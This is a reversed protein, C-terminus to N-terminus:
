SKRLQTKLWIKAELETPFSRFPVSMKYFRNFFNVILRMALNDTIMASAIFLEEGYQAAYERAERTMTFDARGDMLQLAKNKACGLERYVRFCAEVEVGDMEAGPKPRVWLFGEEDIWIESLATKIIDTKLTMFMRVELTLKISVSHGCALTFFGTSCYYFVIIITILDAGM